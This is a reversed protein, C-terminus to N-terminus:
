EMGAILGFSWSITCIITRFFPNQGFFMVLDIEVVNHIHM